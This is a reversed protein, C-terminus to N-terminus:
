GQVLRSFMQYSILFVGGKEFWNNLENIRARLLDVENGRMTPLEYIRLKQRCKHTWMAFEKRWNILVNVPVLILVRNINTLDRNVILTHVLTVIQLTKGLGMCHALICGSGKHGEKIMRVKEFVSDWIFKVGEIQHPKIVAAIAPDVRVLGEKTKEDVDLYIPKADSEKALSFSENELRRKEELRKKRMEEEFLADKTEKGLDADSILNRM